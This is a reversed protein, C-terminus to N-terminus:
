ARSACTTRDDHRRQDREQQREQAVSQEIRDLQFSFLLWETPRDPASFQIPITSLRLLPSQM